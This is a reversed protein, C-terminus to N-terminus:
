LAMSRDEAKWRFDRETELEALVEVARESTAADKQLLEDWEKQIRTAAEEDMKVRASLDEFM